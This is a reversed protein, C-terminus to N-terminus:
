KIATVNTSCSPCAYDLSESGLLHDVCETLKVDEYLTKSDEDKSKENAPIAVSVVDM